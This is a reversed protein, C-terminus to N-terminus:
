VGTEYVNWENLPSLRFLVKGLLYEEKVCGLSAERSDFSNNRNDGMVFVQGEPVTFPYQMTGLKDPYIPEMIYPEEQPQDDVYVTGTAANISVTQGGTAIVRKVLPQELTPATIIVIDGPEVSSVFASVVLSNGEHLTPEMSQQMVGVLRFGFTFVLMVLVVATVIVSVFEFLALAIKDKKTAPAATEEQM